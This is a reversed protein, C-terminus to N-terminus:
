ARLNPFKGTEILHAILTVTASSDKGGSLAIAWHKYFSGYHRLSEVSLEISKPLTLRDEEFLSLTRAM